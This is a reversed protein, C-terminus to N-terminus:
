DRFSDLHPQIDEAKLGDFRLGQPGASDVSSDNVGRTEPTIRTPTPIGNNRLYAILPTVSAGQVSGVYVHGDRQQAIWM